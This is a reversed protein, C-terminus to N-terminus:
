FNVLISSVERDIGGPAKVGKAKAEREKEQAVSGRM